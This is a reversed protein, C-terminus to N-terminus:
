IAMDPPGSALRAIRGILRELVRPGDVDIAIEANPRRGSHGRRDAVTMGATLQGATEVDVFVPMTTVLAPDLAAAVVLPDHVFAGYFGDYAAHFRFYFGLADELFRLIPSGGPEDRPDTTRRSVEALHEPLFRVRETADLGLVLAPPISPDADIARAWGAFALKAAEPDSHVNWEAVPTTNGPVGFAGAMAVWRRLLRPLAPERELAMALTTLPGLTVLTVEGPRDTATGIVVDVARRPSLPHTAPPLLADGIGRPGHTEPTTVLARVLPTERGIAVEVDGRGALELVARTNEAVQQAEANGFLCTAAVLEAEPSACAYLLAVSDDIGTDVDLIIPIPTPAVM